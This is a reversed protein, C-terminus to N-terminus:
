YVRRIEARPFYAHLIEQHTQGARGRMYAGMQCMGVGHGWGGGFFRISELESDAGEIPDVVFLTSLIGSLRRIETSLHLELTSESGELRLCRV